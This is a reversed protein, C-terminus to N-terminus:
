NVNIVIKEEGSAKRYLSDEHAQIINQKRKNFIVRKIVDQVSELPTYDGSKRYDRVRIFYRDQGDTIEHVKGSNLLHDYDGDKVRPLFTQLQAVDSWSNLENLTFGNKLCIDVFDQYDDGSSSMMLKKLAAQQRFNQPLKVVVGKIMTKDLVFDKKNENYYDNIEQQPFLTDILNDVYYQDVKNTLLSNRYDEVMRDIDKQSSKFMDEAEQIKLQNKIWRDVYSKLLKVSDESTMESTFIAAVDHEYLVAGGVEALVQQNSFPNSFRKCSVSAVLVSFFIVKLITRM